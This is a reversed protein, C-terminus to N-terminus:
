HNDHDIILTSKKNFVFDKVQEKNTYSFLQENSQHDIYIDYDGEPYVYCVPYGTHEEIAEALTDLVDQQGNYMGYTALYNAKTLADNFEDVGWGFQDGSLAIIPLDDTPELTDLLEGSDDITISHASSSNTEFVSKRVLTTM